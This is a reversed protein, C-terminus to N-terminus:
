ANGFSITWTFTVTISDTKTIAPSIATRAFLTGDSAVLGVESLDNGNASTSALYYQYAIENDTATTKTMGDVFVQTQLSTDSIAEANTGTGFAMQTIYNSGGTIVNTIVNLGDSVVINHTEITRGDSVEIIVNPTLNISTNM